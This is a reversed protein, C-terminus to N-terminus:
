LTQIITFVSNIHLYHPGVSKVVESKECLIIYGLRRAMHIIKCIAKDLSETTALYHMSIETGSHSRVLAPVLFDVSNFNGMIIYDVKIFPLVKRSDGTYISIQSKIRNAELNKKLYYISDPNIDCMIMMSPHSNSLVPLSFYGIGCFMDLVIYDTLSVYKMKSRTNINGPSFMVKRLDMIYTIGSEVLRTEVGNGYLLELSPRRKTGQIKGTEAYVNDVGLKKAYERAVRIDTKRKFIISNGLRIFHVNKNVVEIKKLDETIRTFINIRPNFDYIASGAISKTLPIYVYDGKQDIHYDPDLIGMSRTCKIAADASFKDAV